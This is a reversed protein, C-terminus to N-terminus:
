VGVIGKITSMVLYGGIVMILSHKMGSKFDGEAFKGIMLGAFLGQIIITAIFIPGLELSAGAGGSLGTLGGIGAGSLGESLEGGIESLKPILYVQLIIMIVIFVFYILYGQITQTYANAKREERVKKIELVSQTVAELVSGMDGGSREAQIVIAVSRKIVSNRTDNAFITLAEHLPYGWTIQNSLKEVHPTLTGYNVRAVQVIANPITVGSRVTEVINRVLELFKAEKEKQDKNDQMIDLLIPLLAILFAIVILPNFVWTKAGIDGTFNFLFIFDILLILFGFGIAIYHKTKLEINM